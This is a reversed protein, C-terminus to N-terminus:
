RVGRGMGRAMGSGMKDLRWRIKTGHLFHEIFPIDYADAKTPSAVYDISPDLGNDELWTDPLSDGSTDTWPTGAAPSPAGGYDDPHDRASETSPGTGNTIHDVIDSDIVDQIDSLTGDAQLQHQAGCDTLLDARSDVASQIRIPVLPDALPSERQWGSPLEEGATYFNLTTYGHEFLAWQDANPTSSPPHSGFINGSVYFSADVTWEIQNARRSARYEVFSSGNSFPGETYHNNIYDVEPGGAGGQDGDKFNYIVNNVWQVGQAAIRPNRDENHALINHHGSIRYTLAVPPESYLPDNDQDRGLLMGKSHTELGESLFCRQLTVDYTDTGGSALQLVYVQVVEDNGWQMSLHDIIIDHGGNIGMCDQQGPTGKPARIRMYRWVINHASGDRDTSYAGIGYTQIGGGPATQGAVYIGDTAIVPGAGTITGGTTFVIIDLKGATVQNTLIDAFSGAGSSNTNTVKHVRIDTRDYTSLALAGHGEAGPFAIRQWAAGANAKVKYGSSDLIGAAM